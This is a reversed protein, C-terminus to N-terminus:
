VEGIAVIWELFICRPTWLTIRKEGRGILIVDERHMGDVSGGIEDTEM